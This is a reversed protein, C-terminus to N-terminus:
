IHNLHYIKKGWSLIEKVRTVNKLEIAIFLGRSPLSHLLYFIFHSFNIAVLSELLQILLQTNAQVQFQSKHKGENWILNKEKSSLSNRLGGLTECDRGYSYPCSETPADSLFKPCPNRVCTEVNWFTSTEVADWSFQWPDADKRWSCQAGVAVPVWVSDALSLGDALVQWALM